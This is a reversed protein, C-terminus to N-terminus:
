DEFINCDKTTYTLLGQHVVFESLPTNKTHARYKLTLWEGTLKDYFEVRDAIEILRREAFMYLIGPYSVQAQAVVTQVDVNRYSIFMDSRFLMLTKYKGAHEKKLQLYANSLGKM